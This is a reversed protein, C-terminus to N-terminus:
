QCLLRFFFFLLYIGATRGHDYSASEALWPFKHKQKLTKKPAANSRKYSKRSRNWM